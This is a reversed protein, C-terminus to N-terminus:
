MISTQICIYTASILNHICVSVQVSVSNYENGKSKIQLEDESEIDCSGQANENM